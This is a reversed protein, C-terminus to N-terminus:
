AAPVLSTRYKGSVDGQSPGLYGMSSLTNVTVLLAYSLPLSFRLLASPPAASLQAM